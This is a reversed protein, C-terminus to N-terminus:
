QALVVRTEDCGGVVPRAITAAPVDLADILSSTIPSPFVLGLLTTQEPTTAAARSRATAAAPVVATTTEFRSLLSVSSSSSSRAM